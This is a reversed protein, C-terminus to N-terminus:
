PEECHWKNRRISHSYIQLAAHLTTKLEEYLVGKQPLPKNKRENRYQIHWDKVVGSEDIGLSYPYRIIYYKGFEKHFSYGKYTSDWVNRGFSFLKGKVGTMEMVTPAIDCQSVTKDITVAKIDKGFILLPIEYHGSASYFYDDEGYSTHDGTIIFITSDYWDHKQAEKFFNMLAYDTYRISKHIPLKGEPFLHQLTEPVNYPNHSSLTFIANFFPKRMTDCYRIFYQLYPEDFIGWAGDYHKKKDAKPYENLGVYRSPGSHKLFSQFSMTGNAAGHFFATSYGAKNYVSFINEVKNTAYSSNLYYSELMSPMGCFISPMMEISKTGNAYCYRFNVCKKSFTDLFPTYPKNNLFGTYDRGLSEVIILVVNRGKLNSKASAEFEPQIVERADTLDMLHVDPIDEGNNSSIMMLPTSVTLPVFGSQVYLGAHLANMPKLHFGGRAAILWIGATLPIALSSRLLNKRQYIYLTNGSVPAIIYFIPILLIILLFAWWFEQVYPLLKNGPDRIIDFLEPGSRRGTVQSYGADIGNLLVVVWSSLTFLAATIKPQNLNGKPYVLMWLWLPLYFYALVPLDFFSGFFIAKCYSFIEFEPLMRANSVGWIGRSLQMILMALAIQRVINFTFFYKIQERFGLEQAQQLM